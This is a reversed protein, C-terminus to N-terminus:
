LSIDQTSQERTFAEKNWVLPLVVLFHNEGEIVQFGDEHMLKYKSRINSLGIGTSRNHQQRRQLNNNVVLQSAPTTFIEINLPRSRGLVNHKVANEVLLQLSLSPLLYSDYKRDISIQMDLADGHRTKLLRYYSQIFRAEAAVTSVGTENSSLLYRYVKSLEDLFEEAKSPNESILSSLTNFCNFLFHPNVQNKLNEFEQETSMQRLLEQEHLSERFKELMYMVEWLTEFIINVVFGTVLFLRIDEAAFRYDFLHFVHYVGIILTMSPTMVFLYILFKAGVRKGTDDLGPYKRIIFRDYQYHLYWSGMGMMFVLPFSLFWLRPEEYFRQGFMIHHLAWGILPMSLMFSRFQYSPPKYWKM